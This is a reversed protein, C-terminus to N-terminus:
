DDLFVEQYHEGCSEGVTDLAVPYGLARAMSTVGRDRIGCPVIGEFYTLDCDVNLAFGHTSIWRRVRVGLAGIKEDGLWVGTRGAVREGRLGFDRLTRLMIEELDRCFRHLDRGRASLDCIVYGVLQGPGHWTVEGGRDTRVVPARAADRIYAEEAHTGLTYVPRHECLLLTDGIEGRRRREAHERQIRLGDRYGVLGLDCISRAALHM